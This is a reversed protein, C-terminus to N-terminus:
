IPTRGDFWAPETKMYRKNKYMEEDAREFVSHFDVDNEPDYEAYGAAVSVEFNLKSIENFSQTEARFKDMLEMCRGAEEGELVVVFEDGGVRYVANPSFSRRILSCADTILIDGHSHGFNDNIKKLNNVDFVAVSFSVGKPITENIRATNERYAAANRAGTLSDRYAVEKLYGDYKKLSATTKRFSEALMGIEDDSEWSISTDLDGSALKLAAENLERIPKILRGTMFATILVAVTLIVATFAIIIGMLMNKDGDIEREPAAIVLKMGNKLTRFAFMKTEGMFECEYLESGSSEKGDLTIEVDLAATVFGGQEMQPHYAIEFGNILFANGSEYVKISSIENGIQKFDIDMGVVGIAEGNEFLPIVYSIMNVDINDNYYPKMWMPAGNKVPIYYWGVHEIDDEDYLALDTAEATEFEGTEPNKVYFVGATTSASKQPSFRVYASMVGETNQAYNLTARSLEDTYYKMYEKNALSGSHLQDLVHNALANVSHETETFILSLKETEVECTKNIIEASAKDAYSNLVIIGATGVAISAVLICTLILTLFKSKISKM